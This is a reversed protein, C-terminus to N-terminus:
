RLPCSSVELEDVAVKGKEVVEKAASVNGARLLLLGLESELMLSAEDGLRTRKELATEFLQTAELPDAM